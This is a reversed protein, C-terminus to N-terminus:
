PVHRWLWATGAAVAYAATAPVGLLATALIFGKDAGGPPPAFLAYALAAVVIGAVLSLWGRVERALLYAVLGASLSVALLSMLGEGLGRFCLFSTGCPPPPALTLWLGAVAVAVPGAAAGVLFAGLLCLDSRRAPTVTGAGSRRSTEDVAITEHRM